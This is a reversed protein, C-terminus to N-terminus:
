WKGRSEIEVQREIDRAKKVEKKEFKKKGKALALEIKAKPGKNYVSLPILSLNQQKMKTGLSVIQSKHLLLKRTRLPDYDKASSVSPQPINAGVLYAEGDKIRAFANSIDGRGDKLAKAEIGLLSIGAELTDFIFYDHRARKNRLLM